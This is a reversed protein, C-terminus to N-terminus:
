AVVAFLLKCQGIELFEMLGCIFVVSHLTTINVVPLTLAVFSSHHPVWLNAGASVTVGVGGPHPSVLLFAHQQVQNLIARFCFTLVM